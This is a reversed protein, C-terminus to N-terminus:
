VKEAQNTKSKDVDKAQKLAEAVALEHLLSLAENAPINGAMAGIKNETNYTFTFIIQPM